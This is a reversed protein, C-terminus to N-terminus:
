EKYMHEFGDETFGNMRKNGVLIVPIGTAGMQKYRRHAAPDKEIDYDTFSIGKKKFYRRAKKCYGCWDTGYLVVEKGVDYISNDYSISTYSNIKIEVKEVSTTEPKQDSFHVHGQDDKWKYIGGYSPHILLLLLIVPIIIKM